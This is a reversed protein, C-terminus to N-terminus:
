DQIVSNGSVCGVPTNELIELTARGVSDNKGITTMFEQSNLLYIDYDFIGGQCYWPGTVLNDTQAPDYVKDFLRYIGGNYFLSFIVKWEESEVVLEKEAAALNDTVTLTAETPTWGDPIDLAGQVPFVLGFILVFGASIFMDRLYYQNVLMDIEGKRTSEAARM